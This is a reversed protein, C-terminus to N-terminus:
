SVIQYCHRSHIFSRWVDVFEQNLLFSLNGFNNWQGSQVIVGNMAETLRCITVLLNPEKPCVSM